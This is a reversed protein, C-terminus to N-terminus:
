CKPLRRSADTSGQKDKCSFCPCAGRLRQGSEVDQRADGDLQGDEVLHVDRVPQDVGDALHVVRALQELDLDQVIRGVLRLVDRLQRHAPVGGLPEVDAVQVPDVPAAVLRARELRAEPLRGALEDRDEVGVEDRRAIEQLARQRVEGIRPIPM